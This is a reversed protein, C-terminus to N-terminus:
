NVQKYGLQYGEQRGEPEKRKLSAAYWAEQHMPEGMPSDKSLFPFQRPGDIKSGTTSLFDETKVEVKPVFASVNSSSQEHLFRALHPTNYSNHVSGPNLPEPFIGHEHYYRTYPMTGSLNIGSPLPDRSGFHFPGKASYSHPPLTHSAVRQMPEMPQLIHPSAMLTHANNTMHQMTSFDALYVNRTLSFDRTGPNSFESTKNGLLQCGQGLWHANNSRGALSASTDLNLDVLPSSESKPPILPQTAENAADYLCNLDIWPSKAHKRDVESHSHQLTSPTSVGEHELSIGNAADIDEVVDVNLDIGTFHELDKPRHDASCTKGDLNMSPATPRFASTEATGKWGLGGEFKLPKLPRGSPIGAKAVVHIVDHSSVSAFVTQVCDEPENANIDENLDFGAIVKDHDKVPKKGRKTMSSDSSEIVWFEDKYKDMVKSGMELSKGKMALVSGGEGSIEHKVMRERSHFTPLNDHGDRMRIDKVTRNTCYFNDSNDSCFSIKGVTAPNKEETSLANRSFCKVNDTKKLVEADEPTAAEHDWNHSIERDGKNIMSSSHNGDMLLVKMSNRTNASRIQSAIQASVGSESSATVPEEPSSRDFTKSNSSDMPSGCNRFLYAEKSTEQYSQNSFSVPVAVPLSNSCSSETTHQSDHMTANLGDEAAVLNNRRTKRMEMEFTGSGPTLHTETSIESKVSSSQMDAEHCKSNNKFALASGHKCDSDMSESAQEGSLRSSSFRMKTSGLHACDKIEKCAPSTNAEVTEGKLDAM